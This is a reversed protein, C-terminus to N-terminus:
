QGKFSPPRKERVASLGEKLDEGSFDLTQAIAESQQAAELSMRLSRRLTAKTRAVAVPANAAIEAAMAEAQESLEGPPYLANVLGIPLAEEAEIIKGTYLLEAAKAPGVLRPLFYTAAMGPHLGLRAFNLGLKAKPTALRIDCAMAFCLGAGVAAGHLVAITPMPLAHIKLFRAYYSLMVRRNQEAPTRTREEIFEFDGGAAFGKGEGRVLVVRVADSEALQGCAAAIEDGMQSSMANRVAPRALTLTAIPGQRTLKITEFSM